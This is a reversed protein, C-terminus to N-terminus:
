FINKLKKTWIFWDLLNKLKLIEKVTVVPKIDGFSNNINARVIQKNMM